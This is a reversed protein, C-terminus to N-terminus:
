QGVKVAIAEWYRGHDNWDNVAHVEYTEGGYEIRDAEQGAEPDGTRLLVPCFIKVAQKTRFGEPLMELDKPQLPQLSANAEVITTDSGVPVYRGKTYVGTAKRKVTISTRFRPLIRAANLTKM